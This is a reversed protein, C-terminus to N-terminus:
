PGTATTRCSQSERGGAERAKLAKRDIKGRDNKPLRDVVEIERPYKHKALHRKVWDKIDDRDIKAGSRPVLFAKSLMLGDRAVAIVAAEAVTPHRLLCDEVELPSVWLGSVKMLDDARGAFYFYGEEDQRFLDSSMCWHGHFTEWSKDRDQWYGLAVSDGRVWLTGIEGPAVPAAGPGAAGRPLVRAEYGEVVRGLSGPKSGRGPPEVRLHPVDRSLRHRGLGRRRLARDVPRPAGPAPGRRGLPVRAPVLPRPGARRARQLDADHDLLKGIMTPVNTLLTAQYRHVALAVSEPTPRECFLGTTGGVAFPFMLNTGTAYGFFLRPVSVCVDGRRWGITEKAYVETNFAFDRHTHMAAKSRGTSGSTFLWIAIDDRRTVPPSWEGSAGGLAETLWLRAPGGDGRALISAPVPADPDDGTALEATLLVTQLWPSQDIAEALAEAVRPLTVMVTARTYELLYALDKTPADPNSMAVVGGAKLTGFFAWVFPPIDPLCILVRQEPLLGADALVESLRMSLDAVEAYTWTREGFLVAPAHGHGEELRDFLFYDALNFVEPFTPGAM